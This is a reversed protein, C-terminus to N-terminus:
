RASGGNEVAEDKGVLVEILEEQTLSEPEVVGWVENAEVLLAEHPITNLYRRYSLLM